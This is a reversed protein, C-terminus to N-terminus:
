VNPGGILTPNFQHFRAKAERYAERAAERSSYRGLHIQKRNIQIKARWRGTCKCFSIGLESQERSSRAFLNQMNESRTCARLNQIRNDTKVHNIHDVDDKPWEGYVILWALRHAKYRKGMIHINLYGKADLGGAVTGAWRKNKSSKRIFVGTLPNYNFLSVVDDRTPLEARQNRTLSKRPSQQSM